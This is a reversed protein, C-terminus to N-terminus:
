AEVQQYWFQGPLMSCAAPNDCCSPLEFENITGQGECFVWGEATCLWTQFGALPPPADACTIESTESECPVLNAELIPFGGADYIPEGDLDLMVPLAEIMITEPFGECGLDLPDGGTCTGRELQDAVTGDFTPPAFGCDLGLCFDGPQAQWNGNEVPEGEPVLWKYIPRNALPVNACDTGQLVFTNSGYCDWAGDRVYIVLQIASGFSQSFKFVNFGDEHGDYAEDRTLTATNCVAGIGQEQQVDWTWLCPDPLWSFAYGVLPGAVPGENFFSSQQTYMVGACCSDDDPTIGTFQVMMFQPIGDPCVEECTEALLPVGFVPPQLCVTDPMGECQLPLYPPCVASLLNACQCCFGDIAWSLLNATEYGYTTEELYLTGRGSVGVILKYQFTRDNEGFEITQWVCYGDSLDPQYWLSYGGGTITVNGCTFGPMMFLWPDMGCPCYACNELAWGPEQCNWKSCGSGGSPDDEADSISGPGVTSMVGVKDQDETNPLTLSVLRSSLATARVIDEGTTVRVKSLFVPSGDSRVIVPEFPSVVKVWGQGGQTLIYDENGAYLQATETTRLRVQLVPGDHEMSAGYVEVIGFEQVDDDSV